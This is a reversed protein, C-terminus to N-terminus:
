RTVAALADQMADHFDSRHYIDNHGAGEITRNYSLRRLKRALAETRPKRILRDEGAAIIAARVDAGALYGASDLEHGFLASVPLWPYHDGAVAKLSDFPTVLIIGGLKRQSALYAAVGSGISFGVAVTREPRVKAVAFDHIRLADDMLAKASPEGTSPRYGRYHFQIVDADPYVKHLYTAADQSNWANGAFGIILTRHGHTGAPRIHLGHLVDGDETELTLTEASKPLPGPPGVAHRPFVFHSQLSFM